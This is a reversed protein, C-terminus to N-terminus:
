IYDNEVVQQNNSLCKNQEIIEDPVVHLISKGYYSRNLVLYMPKTASSRNSQEIAVTGATIKIIINEM